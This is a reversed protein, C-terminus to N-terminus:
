TTETRKCELSLYCLAEREPAPRLDNLIIRQHIGYVFNWEDTNLIGGKEVVLEIVRRMEQVM